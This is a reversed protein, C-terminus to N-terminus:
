QGNAKCQDGSQIIKLFLYILHIILIEIILAPKPKLNQNWEDNAHNIVDQAKQQPFKGKLLLM